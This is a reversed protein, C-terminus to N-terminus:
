SPTPQSRRAADTRLRTLHVIVLMAGIGAADLFLDGVSAHRGPVSAQHWEDMVACVMASSAAGAYAAGSIEMAGSGGLARLWCFALAAFVPTHAFNQALLMLPDSETTSLDPISSTVYIAALLATTLLGYRWDFQIGTM